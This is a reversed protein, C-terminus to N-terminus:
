ILYSYSNSKMNNKEEWCAAQTEEQNPSLPRTVQVSELYWKYVDSM